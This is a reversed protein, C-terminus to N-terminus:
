SEGYMLFTSFFVRIAQMLELDKFDFQQIFKKLISKNEKISFIEM